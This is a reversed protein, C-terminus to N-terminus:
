DLRKRSDDSAGQESVEDDVAAKQQDEGWGSNM